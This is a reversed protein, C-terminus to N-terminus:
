DDDLGFKQKLKCDARGGLIKMAKSDRADATCMLERDIREREQAMQREVAEKRAVEAERKASQLEDEDVGFRSKLARDARDEGLVQAVKATKKTTERLLEADRREREAKAQQEDLERQREQAKEKAELLESSTRGLRQLVKDDGRHGMLTPSDDRNMADVSLENSAATATSSNETPGGDHEEVGTGEM